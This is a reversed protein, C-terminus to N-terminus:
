TNQALIYKYLLAFAASYMFLFYLAFPIGIITVFLIGMAITAGIIGWVKGVHGKTAEWSKKLGEIPGAGEIVFYQSLVLRPLVFFFPVILLVFSVALALGYLVSNVFYKGVLAPTLKSFAEDFSLKQGAIGALYLQLMVVSLVVNIVDAIIRGVSGILKMLIIALAFEVIYLGLLLAWNKVIVNKSYKYLGWAGPWTAPVTETTATTVTAAPQQDM